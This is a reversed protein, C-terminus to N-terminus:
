QQRSIDYADKRKWLVHLDKEHGPRVLGSNCVTSKFKSVWGPRRMLSVLITHCAQCQTQSPKSAYKNNGLDLKRIKCKRKLLVECIHGVGADGLDNGKLSLQVISENEKLADALIRAGQEELYNDSCAHVWADCAKSCSYQGWNSSDSLFACCTKPREPM